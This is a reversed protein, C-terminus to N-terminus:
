VIQPRSCFSKLLRLTQPYLFFKIRLTWSFTWTEQVLLSPILSLASSPMLSNSVWSTQALDTQQLCLTSIWLNRIESSIKNLLWVWNPTSSTFLNYLANLCTHGSPTDRESVKRVIRDSIKGRPSEVLYAWRMKQERSSCCDPKCSVVRVNNVGYTNRLTCLYTLWDTLSDIIINFIQQQEVLWWRAMM